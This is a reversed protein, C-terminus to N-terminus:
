NAYLIWFKINDTYSDCHTGANRDGKVLLDVYRTGSVVPRFFGNASWYIESFFSGYEDSGIPTQSADLLRLGLAVQDRPSQSYVRNMASIYFKYDSSFYDILDTNIEQAELDIRQSIISEAYDGGTFFNPGEYGGSTRYTMGGLESTWGLMGDEAGPNIVDLQIENLLKIHAYVEVDDIQVDNYGASANHTKLLVDVYRTGSVLTHTFDEERWNTYTDFKSGYRDAGIAIKNEDLYRFGLYGYDNYTNKVMAKLVMFSDETDIISSPIGQAVLDIQQSMVPTTVNYGEFAYSGAYHTTTVRFNGAEDTWGTMDGTEAGPNILTFYKDTYTHSYTTLTPTCRARILDNYYPNASDDMCIIYHHSGYITDISYEGETGSVSSSVTSELFVDNDSKFLRLERSVPAGNEKTIGTFQYDKIVETEIKGYKAGYGPFDINTSVVDFNPPGVPVPNPSTNSLRCKLVSRSPVDPFDNGCFNDGYMYVDCNKIHIAKLGHSSTTYYHIRFVNTNNDAYESAFVCKNYTMRLGAAVNATSHYVVGYASSTGSNYAQIFKIGEVHVDFTSTISCHTRFPGYQEGSWRIIVKGEEPFDTNGVLNVFKNTMYIYENYTGEDIFITDGHNAANLAENIKSFVRTPGVRFIAM